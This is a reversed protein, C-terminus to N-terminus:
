PAVPFTLCRISLAPPPPCPLPLPSLPFDGRHLPSPLWPQPHGRATALKARRLNQCAASLRDTPDSHSSHCECPRTHPPPLPKRSCTGSTGQRLPKASKVNGSVWTGSCVPRWAICHFPDSVRLQCLPSPGPKHNKPLGKGEGLKPNKMQLVATHPAPLVRDESTLVTGSHCWLGRHPNPQAGESPDPFAEDWPRQRTPQGRTSAVSQHARHM